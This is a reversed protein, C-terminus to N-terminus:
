KAMMSKVFEEYNLKGSVVNTEKIMADAQAGSIIVDKTGGYLRL